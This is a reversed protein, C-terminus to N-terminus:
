PVPQPSSTLYFSRCRPRHSGSRMKAIVKGSEDTPLGMTKTGGADIGIVYSM